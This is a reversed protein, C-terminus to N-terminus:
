FKYLQTIAPQWSVVWKSAVTVRLRHRSKCDTESQLWRM